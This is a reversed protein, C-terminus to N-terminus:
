LIEKTLTIFKKLVLPRIISNTSKFKEKLYDNILRINFRTGVLIYDPNLSIVEDFKYIKYGLFSIMDREQEFRQDCIGLINLKSLDYYKKIIEFYSGAGYIIINKNKLYKGIKKLHKNFNFKKLEEYFLIGNEIDNNLHNM